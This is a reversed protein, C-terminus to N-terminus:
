ATTHQEHSASRQPHNNAQVRAENWQQLSDLTTCGVNAAHKCVDIWVVDNRASWLKWLLM